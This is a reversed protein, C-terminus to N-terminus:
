VITEVHSELYPVSKIIAGGSMTRKFLLKQLEKVLLKFSATNFDAKPGITYNDIYSYLQSVASVLKKETAEYEKLLNELLDSTESTITKGTKEKLLKRVKNFEIVFRKTFQAAAHDTDVAKLAHPNVYAGGHLASDVLKHSCEATFSKVIKDCEVTAIRNCEAKFEDEGGGLTWGNVDTHRRTIDALSMRQRTSDDAATRVYEKVDKVAYDTSSGPASADIKNDTIFMRFEGDGHVSTAAAFGTTHTTTATDNLNVVFKIIPSFTSINDKKLEVVVSNYFRQTKQIKLLLNNYAKKTVVNPTNVYANRLKIVHEETLDSLPINNVDADNAINNFIRTKLSEYKVTVDVNTARFYHEPNDINVESTERINKLLDNYINSGELVNKLSKPLDFNLSLKVFADYKTSKVLLTAFTVLNFREVNSSSGIRYKINSSSFKASENDHNVYMVNPANILGEEILKILDENSKPVGDDTVYSKSSDGSPFFTSDFEPDKVGFTDIMKVIFGEDVQELQQTSGELNRKIFAALSPVGQPASTTADPFRLLDDAGGILAHVDVLSDDDTM